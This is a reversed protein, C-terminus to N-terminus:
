PCSRRTSTKGLMVRRLVPLFESKTHSGLFTDLEFFPAASFRRTGAANFFPVRRKKIFCGTRWFCRRGITSCPRPSPMANAFSNWWGRKIEVRGYVVRGGEYDIVSRQYKGHPICNGTSGCVPCSISYKAPISTGQGQSGSSTKKFKLVKCFIRYQRIM